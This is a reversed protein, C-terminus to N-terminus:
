GVVRGKLLAITSKRRADQVRAVIDGKALGAHFRLAEGERRHIIVYGEGEDAEIRELDDWAISTENGNDHILLGEPRIALYVNEFLMTAMTGFGLVLGALMIAGGALSVAFGVNPRLRHMLHAGVGSAGAAILLAASTLLKKTPGSRDVRFFDVGATAM